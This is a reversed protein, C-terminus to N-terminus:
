ETMVVEEEGKAWNTLVMEDILFSAPNRDGVIGGIQFVSPSCIKPVFSFGSSVVKKGDIFFTRQYPEKTLDWTAVIYHWSYPNELDFEVGEQNGTEDYISFLLQPEAFSIEFSWPQNTGDFNWVLLPSESYDASELQLWFSITGSNLFVEGGSLILSGEKEVKLAQGVQGPVFSTGENQEVEWGEPLSDSLILLERREAPPFLSPGSYPTQIPTLTPTPTESGTTSSQTELDQAVQTQSSSPPPTPTSTPLPSPLPSPFELVGLIEGSKTAENDKKVVLSEKREQGFVIILGSGSALGLLLGLCFLVVIKSNFTIKRKLNIDPKKM